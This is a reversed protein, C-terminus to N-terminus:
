TKPNQLQQVLGEKLAHRLLKGPYEDLVPLVKKVWPEEVLVMLLSHDPRLAAKVERLFQDSFGQDVKRAAIGGAAAGASAGIVVGVPGELLGLLGGLLAGWLAGKGPAVDQSEHISAAGEASKEVAALSVLRLGQEKARKELAHLAIKAGGRAPFVKVLLEVPEVILARLYRVFRQQV